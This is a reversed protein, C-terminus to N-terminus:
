PSHILPFHIVKDVASEEDLMIIPGKMLELIPIDALNSKFMGGIKLYNIIDTHSLIYYNNNAEDHIFVASINNDYLTNIAQEFTADIDLMIVYPTMIDRAIASRVDIAKM